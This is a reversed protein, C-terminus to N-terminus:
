QSLYFGNICDVPLAAFALFIMKLSLVDIHM